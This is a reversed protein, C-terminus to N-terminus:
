ANTLNHMQMYYTKQDGMINYVM